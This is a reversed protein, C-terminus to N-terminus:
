GEFMQIALDVADSLPMNRGKQWAAAFIDEGLSTELRSRLAETEREESRDGAPGIDEHLADVAGLLEVAEVPKPAAVLARAVGALSSMILARHGMERSYILSDRFHWRAREFDGCENAIVGMNNLAIAIQDLKGSERRIELSTQMAERAAACDGLKMACLGLDNLSEAMGLRDGLMRRIELSQTFVSRAHAYRGEGAAVLGMNHLATSVGRVDGLERCLALAEEHLARACACDGLRWHANGLYGCLAAIQRSDGLERCIDLAEAFQSRAHEYEGQCSALGACHSLVRARVLTRELPSSRALARSLQERGEQWAGRRLWYGGLAAAMRLAHGSDDAADRSWELAARLNEMDEDLRELAERDGGGQADLWEAFETYYAAHRVRLAAVEQGSLQEEAYALLADRMKFRVHDAEEDATVLSCERLDTLRELADPAECVAQAAEATWGGRFVSLGAFFRQQQPSLLRFSWEVAARLTRHRKSADRRRDVLFDLPHELASAMQAPSLTQIRAAALELALPLGELRRCLEAVADANSDSLRFRPRVAQARDVFLRVSPSARVEEPAADADPVPLSALELCRECSLRLVERSTVVCTLGPAGELLLRVVSAGGDVLHEFNDLVLLAERDKLAQTVLRLATSDGRRDLGMRGAVADALLQPDQVDELPVFWLAEGFARRLRGCAEQALRTKGSGAVGTVTVLRRKELLVMEELRGLEMQRGFLETLPQLTSRRPMAAAKLASLLDTASTWRDAPKPLMARRLAELVEGPVEGVAPPVGGGLLQELKRASSQGRGALLEFLTLGLSYIDSRCDLKRGAKQEPSMYGLTGGDLQAPTSSLADRVVRALGFDAIKVMGEPTVLFNEPKIDCHVVRQSHAYDLAACMDEAMGLVANVSLQGQERLVQRLSPGNVFEMVLFKVEGDEEFNRLQVINPHGLRHAVRAEEKLRAIAKLNRSLVPALVKVAVVTELTRDMARYVVAMGGRGVGELLEYRESLVKPPRPTWVTKAQDTGM